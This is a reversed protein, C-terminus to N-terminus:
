DIRFSILWSYENSPSISFSWYKQWRICLALENSFVKISSLNFALPSPVVLSSVADSVGHVHTQAIELLYHIVSSGPTSCDIPAAFLQVSSLLSCCSPLFPSLLKTENIDWIMLTKLILTKQYFKNTLKWIWLIVKEQQHLLNKPSSLSPFKFSSQIDTRKM